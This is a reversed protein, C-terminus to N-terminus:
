YCGLADIEADPRLRATETRNLKPAIEPINQWAEFASVFYDAVTRSIRFVWHDLAM